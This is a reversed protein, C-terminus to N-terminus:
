PQESITVALIAAGNTFSIDLRFYFGEQLMIPEGPRIDAERQAIAQGLNRYSLYEPGIQGLRNFIRSSEGIWFTAPASRFDGALYFRFEQRIHDCGSQTIHLELGDAFTLSEEAKDKELQFHHAKVAPLGPGFVPEPAGYLCNSFPEQGAPNSCSQFCPLLLAPLMVRYM